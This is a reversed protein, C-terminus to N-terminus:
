LCFISVLSGNPLTVTTNQLTKFTSFSSRDYSIYNTARSDMVLANIAIINSNVSCVYPRDIGNFSCLIFHYFTGSIPYVTSSSPVYSIIVSHVEPIPTFSPPQIKTILFSVLQQIHAPSLYDTSLSIDEPCDGVTIYAM